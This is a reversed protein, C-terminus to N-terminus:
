RSQTEQMNTEGTASGVESERANQVINNTFRVSLWLILLIIAFTLIWSPYVGLSFVLIMFVTLLASHAFGRILHYKKKPYRPMLKIWTAFASVFISVIIVEVVFYFM